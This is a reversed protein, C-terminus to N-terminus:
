SLSLTQFDTLSADKHAAKQATTANEWFDEVETSTMDAGETKTPSGGNYYYGGSARDSALVIQGAISYIIRDNNTGELDTSSVQFKNASEGGAALYCTVTLSNHPASDDFAAADAPTASYLRTRTGGQITFTFSTNNAILAKEEATAPTTGDSKYVGEVALTIYDYLDSFEVTSAEYLEDGM